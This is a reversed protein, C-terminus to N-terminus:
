ENVDLLHAERFITICVLNLRALATQARHPAEAHDPSYIKCGTTMPLHCQSLLRRQIDAETVMQDVEHNRERCTAENYDQAVEQYVERDVEQHVQRHTDRYAAEPPRKAQRYAKFTLKQSTPIHRPLSGGPQSKVQRYSKVSRVHSDGEKQFNTARDVVEDYRNDIAM